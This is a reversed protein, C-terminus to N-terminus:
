KSKRLCGTYFISKPVLTCDDLSFTIEQFHTIQSGTHSQKSYNSAEAGLKSILCLSWVWRSSLIIATLSSVCRCFERVYLFVGLPFYFSCFACKWPAEFPCGLLQLLAYAVLSLSVEGWLESQEFSYKIVLPMIVRGLQPRDVWPPITHRLQFM